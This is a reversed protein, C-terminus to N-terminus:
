QAIELRHFADDDVADDTVLGPEGPQSRPGSLLERQLGGAAQELPDVGSPEGGGPESPTQDCRLAWPVLLLGGISIWLQAPGIGSRAQCSGERLM